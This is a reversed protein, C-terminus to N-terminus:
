EHVEAQSERGARCVSPRAHSATASPNARVRYGPHLALPIRSRLPAMDPIGPNRQREMRAVPKRALMMLAAYRRTNAHRSLVPAGHARLRPVFFDRVARAMPQAEEAGGHPRGKED